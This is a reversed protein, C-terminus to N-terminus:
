QNGAGAIQRDGIRGTGIDFCRGTSSLHGDRYWRVFRALQDVPDFCKREVLSEALCLALSTDDTWQGPKLHFPGGGKMDDIPKFSGPPRFELTTGLADGVALGILAGRYHDPRNM